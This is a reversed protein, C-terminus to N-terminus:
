RQGRRKTEEAFKKSSAGPRYNSESMLMLMVLVNDSRRGWTKDSARGTLMKFDLM